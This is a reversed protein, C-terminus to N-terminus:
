DRSVNDDEGRVWTRAEDYTEVFWDVIGLTSETAQDKPIVEAITKGVTYTDKAKAYEADKSACGSFVIAALAAASIIKKM